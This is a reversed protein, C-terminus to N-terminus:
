TTTADLILNVQPIPTLDDIGIASTDSWTFSYDDPSEGPRMAEAAARIIPDASNLGSEIKEPLASATDPESTFAARTTDSKLKVAALQAPRGNAGDFDAQWAKNAALTELGAAATEAPTSAPAGEPAGESPSAPSPAPAPTSVTM